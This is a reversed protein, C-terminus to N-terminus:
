VWLPVKKAAQKHVFAAFMFGFITICLVVTWSMPSISNGLLPARIIEMFHYFPNFILFNGLAGGTGDVPMWIIPTIFFFLRTIASVVEILDRYRAGIVGFAVSLWLGNLVALLLGIVSVLAYPTPLLKFFIFVGLIVISQHLYCPRRGVL